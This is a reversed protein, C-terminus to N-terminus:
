GALSTLVIPTAQSTRWPLTAGTTGAHIIERYKQQMPRTKHIIERYTKASPTDQQYWFTLVPLWESFHRTEKPQTPAAGEIETGPPPMGCCCFYAPRTELDQRTEVIVTASTNKTPHPPPAMFNRIPGVRINLQVGPHKKTTHPPPAM